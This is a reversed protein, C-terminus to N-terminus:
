EILKFGYFYSLSYEAARADGEAHAVFAEIYDGVDLAYIKQTQAYLVRNVYPSYDSFYTKDDRSGNKYLAISISEQDDLGDVASKAVIVYKGAQGSPVTFRYNSTDYCGGVDFNETNFAIKTFTENPITQNASMYASFAPTNAGGFGTQTGNNTITAGSPVTITTGSAGLTINKPISITSANSDGITLTSSGSINDITNTELKSM